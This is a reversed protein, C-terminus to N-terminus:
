RLWALGMKLSRSGSSRRHLTTIIIYLYHDSLDADSLLLNSLTLQINTDHVALANLV